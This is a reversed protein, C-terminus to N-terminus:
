ASRLREIAAYVANTKGDHPPGQITVRWILADKEVEVDAFWPHWRFGNHWRGKCIPRGGPTRGSVKDVVVKVHKM